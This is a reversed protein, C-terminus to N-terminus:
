TNLSLEITGIPIYSNCDLDDINKLSTKMYCHTYKNRRLLDEVIAEEIELTDKDEQLLFNAM